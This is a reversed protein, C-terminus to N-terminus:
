RYIHLYLLTDTLNVKFYSQAIRGFIDGHYEDVMTLSQSHMYSRSKFIWKIKGLLRNEM